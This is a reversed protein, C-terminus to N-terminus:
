DLTFRGLAGARFAKLAKLYAGLQNSPDRMGGLGPKVHELFMHMREDWEDQDQDDMAPHWASAGGAVEGRAAALLAEGVKVAVKHQKMARAIALEHPVGQQRPIVAPRPSSVTQQLTAQFAKNKTFLQVLYRIMAAEGPISDKIAGLPPPLCAFLFPSALPDLM